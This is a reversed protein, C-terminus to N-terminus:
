YSSAGTHKHELLARWEVLISAVRRAHSPRPALGLFETELLLLLEMVRQEDADDLLAAFVDPVFGAYHERALPDRSVGNPDWQYLLVEDIRQFLEQDFQQTNLDM